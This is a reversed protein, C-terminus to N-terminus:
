WKASNMHSFMERVCPIAFWLCVLACQGKEMHPGVVRERATAEIATTAVGLSANWSADKRRLQGPWLGQFAANGLLGRSSAAHNAGCAAPLM